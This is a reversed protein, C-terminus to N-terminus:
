KCSKRSTWLGLFYPLPSDFCVFTDVHNDMVKKSKEEKEASEKKKDKDSGQLSFISTSNVTVIIIAPEM